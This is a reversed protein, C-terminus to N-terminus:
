FVKLKIAKDKNMTMKPLEFKFEPQKKRTAKGKTTLTFEGRITSFGNITTVLPKEKKTVNRSKETHLVTKTPKTLNFKLTSKKLVFKGTTSILMNSQKNRSMEVAGTTLIINQPIPSMRTARIPSKTTKKLSDNNSLWNTSNKSTKDVKKILKTVKIRDSLNGRHGGVETKRVRFGLGNIEALLQIVESNDSQSFENVKLTMKQKSDDALDLVKELPLTEDNLEENISNSFFPRQEVAKPKTVYTANYYKEARKEGRKHILDNQELDTM